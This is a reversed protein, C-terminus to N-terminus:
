NSHEYKEGGTVLDRIIIKIEGNEIDDVGMKNIKDLIAKDDFYFSLIVLADEGNERLM